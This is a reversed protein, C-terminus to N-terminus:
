QLFCLIDKQKHHICFKSNQSLNHAINKLQKEKLREENNKGTFFELLKDIFSADVAAQKATNKQSTNM